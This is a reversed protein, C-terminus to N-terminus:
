WFGGKSSVTIEADLTGFGITAFTFNYNGSAIQMWGSSYTTQEGQTGRRSWLETDESLIKAEWLATGSSVVVQVQVMSHLAPVSFERRETELGITFSVPLSLVTRPYTWVAFIGVAVIIAVIVLVAIKLGRSRKKVTKELFDRRRNKEEGLDAKINYSFLRKRTRYYV